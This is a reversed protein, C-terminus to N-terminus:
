GPTPDPPQPTHGRELEEALRLTAADLQAPVLQHTRSVEALIAGAVDEVGLPGVEDEV